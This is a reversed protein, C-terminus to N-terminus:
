EVTLNKEVMCLMMTFCDPFTNLFYKIQLVIPIPFAIIGSIFAHIEAHIEAYSNHQCILESVLLDILITAHLVHLLGCWQSKQSTLTLHQGHKGM